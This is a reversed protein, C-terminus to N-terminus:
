SFRVGGGDQHRMTKRFLNSCRADPDVIRRLGKGFQELHKRRRRDAGFRANM